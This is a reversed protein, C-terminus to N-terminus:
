GRPPSPPDVIARVSESPEALEVDVDVRDGPLISGLHGLFGGPTPIVISSM